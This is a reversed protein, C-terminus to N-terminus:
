HQILTPKYSVNFHHLLDKATGHGMFQSGLYRSQVRDEKWYRVHLDLQKTKTTQNLTEDFMLTFSGSNVDAVLLKKIHPALGFKALYATKDKGCTFNKAIESDPFMARFIDGVGENASYSQHRTVSHLCWMVEAQLTATSGFITSLDTVTISTRAAPNPFAASTQSVSCFQSIAPTQERSKAAAKHKESHMHSEVAKVGMSGLKFLKKCLMCRAEYSNGPVPKLWTAFTPNDMWHVNFKCKGMVSARVLLLSSFRTGSFAGRGCVCGSINATGSM